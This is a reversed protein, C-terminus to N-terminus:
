LAGTARFAISLVWIAGDGVRTAEQPASLGIRPIPHNPGL